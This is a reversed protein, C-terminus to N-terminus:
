RQGDTKKKRFKQVNEMAGWILGNIDVCAPWQNCMKAPFEDCPCWEIEKKEEAM